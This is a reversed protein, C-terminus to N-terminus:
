RFYSRYKELGACIAEINEMPIDDSIEAKLWLGGEKSGLKDVSERIHDDIDAPSCFPFLQRDLDLEVCVRGKCVEALRDLGNARVQPNVVSVGCDILDPIIDVICGDTHMFVPCGKDVFPRYISEFCPKLYKRWLVPSIALGNQMGLDDGFWAFDGPNLSNVYREAQRLNYGLVVDLLMQLEPPEEIFDIMLSEFGRLDALRLYMFGHPFGIDAQPAKLTHVSERTPVPHKTVIAEMGTKVNSWVCGWADVHEGAIYTAPAADFDRPGEPKEPFLIPHRRTVEELAGRYKMWAAPEVWLSVPIFEPFERRFSRRRDEEIAM